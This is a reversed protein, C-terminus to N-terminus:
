IRGFYQLTGDPGFVAQIGGSSIFRLGGAFRGTQVAEVTTASNTLIGQLASQGAENIAPPGGSTPGFVEGAKAFARGARTLQGGADAPDLEAGSALLRDVSTGGEFVSGAGLSAVTIAAAGIAEDIGSGAVTCSAGPSLANAVDDSLGFSAGRGINVTANAGAGPDFRFGISSIQQGGGVCVWLVEVRLGSPDSSNVPDGGAEPSDSALEARWLGTQHRQAPLTVNGTGGNRPRFSASPAFAHKSCRAARCTTTTTPEAMAVWDGMVSATIAIVM